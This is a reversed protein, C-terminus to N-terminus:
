EVNWDVVVVSCDHGENRLVLRTFDNARNPAELIVLQRSRLDVFKVHMSNWGNAKSPAEDTEASARDSTYAILGGRSFEAPLVRLKVAVGPLAGSISGVSVHQGDVEIVGRRGLVGTWILRGSRPGTYAATKVSPAPAPANTHLPSNSLFEPLGVPRVPRPEVAPPAPLM